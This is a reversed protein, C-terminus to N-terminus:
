GPPGPPSSSPQPLRLYRSPLALGALFGLLSGACAGLGPASPSWAGASDALAAGLIVGLGAGWGIGALVVQRREERQHDPEPGM